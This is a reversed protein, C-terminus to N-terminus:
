ISWASTWTFIADCTFSRYSVTRKSYLGDSAKLPQCTTESGGHFVFLTSVLLQFGIGTWGCFPEQVQDHLDKHRPNISVHYRDAYRALFNLVSVETVCTCLCILPQFSCLLSFLLATYLM